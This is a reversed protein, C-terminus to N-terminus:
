AADAGLRRGPKGTAALRSLDGAVRSLASAWELTNPDCLYSRASDLWPNKECGLMWWAAEHLVWTPTGVGAAIVRTTNAPAIVLDLATSLAALGDFDDRLDLGELTHIPVGFCEEAEAIEAEPGDYQLNVFSVGPTRLIEEWSDLSTYYPGRRGKMSRWSIGVKLGPGLADLRRVFEDRVAGDPRLFPRGGSFSDIDPRLHRMLGALMVHCDIPPAEKLWSPDVRLVGYVSTEPFSRRYLAALRPECEIVCHGARAILDPLCSGFLVEDGVGQEARVLITKGALPGGDWPPYPVPVRRCDPRGLRCEHAEWGERLRGLGLYSIARNWLAQIYTSDLKLAQNLSDLAESYRGLDNFYTGLNNHTEANGPALDRARRTIEIADHFRGERRRVDGLNLLAQLYDPKIELARDYAQAAAELNEEFRYLNGLNYHALALAPNLELARLFCARADELRGQEQRINGLDNHAGAHRTDLGIAREFLEAARDRDGTQAAILGLHHLTEVHNPCSELVREYLAQARDFNGTRHFEVAARYDAEIERAPIRPAAARGHRSSHTKKKNQRGAQRRQQRNM